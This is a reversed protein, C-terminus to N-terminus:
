ETVSSSFLVCSHSDSFELQTTCQTVNAHGSRSCPNHIVGIPLHQSALYNCLSLVITSVKYVVVCTSCKKQLQMKETKAYM